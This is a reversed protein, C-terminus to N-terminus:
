YYFLGKRFNSYELSESKFYDTTCSKLKPLLFFYCLCRLKDKFRETRKEM